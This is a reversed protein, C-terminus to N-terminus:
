EAQKNTTYKKTLFSYISAKSSLNDLNNNFMPFVMGVVCLIIILYKIIIDIRLVSNIREYFYYIVFIIAFLIIFFIAGKIM